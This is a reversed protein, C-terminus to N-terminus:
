GTLGKSGLPGIEGLHLTFLLSFFITAALNGARSDLESCTVLQLRWTWLPRSAGPPLHPHVSRCLKGPEWCCSLEKKEMGERSESTESPISSRLSQGRQRGRIWSGTSSSGCERPSGRGLLVTSLQKWANGPELTFPAGLSSM